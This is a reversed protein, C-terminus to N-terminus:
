TSSEALQQLRYTLQAYHERRWVASESGNLTVKLLDPRCIRRWQAHERKFCQGGLEICITVGIYNCKLPRMSEPM